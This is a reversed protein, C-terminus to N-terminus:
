NFLNIILSIGPENALPSVSYFRARVTHALSYTLYPALTYTSCTRAITRVNKLRMPLIEFFRSNAEDHRDTRGGAHFFEVGV